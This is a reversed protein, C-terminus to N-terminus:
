RFEMFILVTACLFFAVSSLYARIHKSMAVDCQMTISTKCVANVFNFVIWHIIHYIIPTDLKNLTCLVNNMVSCRVICLSLFILLPSDISLQSMNM